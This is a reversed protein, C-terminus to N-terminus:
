RRKAIVQLYENKILTQESPNAALNAGSWLAVLDSALAKQGNEDLRGFAVQTPGFYRRFFDVAGTPNM